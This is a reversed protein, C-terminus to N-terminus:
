PAGNFAFWSADCVENGNHLLKVTIQLASPNPDTIVMTIHDPDVPQVTVQQTWTSFETLPQERSDIPPNYSKANLTTRISNFTPFKDKNLSLERINRALSMGTTTEAGRINTLTGVTILELMSVFGVGVIVTTLAAEILTFGRTQGRRRRNTLINQALRM